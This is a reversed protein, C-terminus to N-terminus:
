TELLAKTCYGVPEHDRFASGLEDGRLTKTM